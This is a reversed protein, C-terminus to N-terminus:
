VGYTAPDLSFAIGEWNNQGAERKRANECAVRRYLALAQRDDLYATDQELHEAFLDRRLRRVCEVDWYAVNLESHGFLSNRNTAVRFADHQPESRATLVARHPEL